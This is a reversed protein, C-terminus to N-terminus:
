ATISFHGPAASNSMRMTGSAAAQDSRPAQSATHCTLALSAAPLAVM